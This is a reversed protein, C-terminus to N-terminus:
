RAMERRVWRRTFRPVLAGTEAWRFYELYAPDRGLHREETRARWYYISSVLGMLLTNRVADGRDAALFPLTALWWFLNKSLYAPHRTVAYPGHTLIGRHTLNSFRPGFAMTAWAYCATLALLTGGIAWLVVPQGSFWVGWTGEGAVSGANYHLPAGPQMLAFPPYCMLAAVWGAVTPEASRIHADLPRMTLVYGVTAFTVDIVFMGSILLTALAVPDRAADSVSTDMIVAFGGPVISLMFALFFGKVAWSRAHNALMTRDVEAWRGTVAAGAHWCGDRPVVLRRDLMAVYLVSGVILAPLAARMLELAWPYNGSWYWRGAWYLVALVAWTVWLGTLKTTTLDLSERWPRRLTWDIGTSPRLHVRDILVSWLVMPAGCAAVATLASLPGGLGYARAILLWGVLGVLGALGVGHGVASEPREPRKLAVPAPDLRVPAHM